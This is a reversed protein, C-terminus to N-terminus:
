FLPWVYDAFLMGALLAEWSGSCPEAGDGWLAPKWAEAGELAQDPSLLSKRERWQLRKLKKLRAFAM